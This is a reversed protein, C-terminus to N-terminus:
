ILLRVTLSAWGLRVRIVRVLLHRNRLRLVRTAVEADDILPDDPNMPDSTIVVEGEFGADGPEGPNTDFSAVRATNAVSGNFEAADTVRAQYTVTLTEGAELVAVDLTFGVTGDANTVEVATTGDSAVVSGTVLSLGADLMLDEIAIDYAPGTGSNPIELTFSIVDRM